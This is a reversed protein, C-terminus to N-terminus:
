EFVLHVILSNLEFYERWEGLSIQSNVVKIWITKRYPNTLISLPFFFDYHRNEQYIRLLSTPYWVAQNPTRYHNWTLFLDLFANVNKLLLRIPLSKRKSQKSLALYNWTLVSLSSLSEMHELYMCPYTNQIFCNVLFHTSERVVASWLSWPKPDTLPLVTSSKWLM